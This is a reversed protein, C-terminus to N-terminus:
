LEMNVDRRSTRSVLKEKYDNALTTLNELEDSLQKNRRETESKSAKIEEIEMNMQSRENESQAIVEKYRQEKKQFDSIISQLKAVTDELAKIRLM